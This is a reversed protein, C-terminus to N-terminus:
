RILINLADSTVSEVGTGQQKRCVFEIFDHTDPASSRLIRSLARAAEKDQLSVARGRRRIRFSQAATWLRTEVRPTVSFGMAELLGQLQRMAPISLHRPAEMGRWDSGFHARVVSSANPLSLLLLGGPKLAALFIMLMERPEFVHELVHSCVIVDLENEHARLLEYSGERVDLGRAHAVRVAAPDFELGFGRWGLHKAIRLMEGDGCGVDVLMGGGRVAIERLGFPPLLRHQLPRLMWSLWRPLGLRPSVDVDLVSSWVEHMLLQKVRALRSVEGGVQHTYYTRYARGITERTPRPSLYLSGCAGCCWYSWRGPATGFAWDEVSDHALYQAMAGCYPCTEVRETEHAPWEEREETGSRLEATM